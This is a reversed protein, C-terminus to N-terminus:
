PQVHSSDPLSSSAECIRWSMPSTIDPSFSAVWTLAYQKSIHKWVAATAGASLLPLKDSSSISINVASLVSRAFNLEQACMYDWECVCVCHSGPLFKSVHATKMTEQGVSNQAETYFFNFFIVACFSQKESHNEAWTVHVNGSMEERIDVQPVYQVKHHQLLSWLNASQWEQNKSSIKM